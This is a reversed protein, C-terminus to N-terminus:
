LYEDPRRGGGRLWLRFEDLILLGQPGFHQQHAFVPLDLAGVEVCKLFQDGELGLQGLFRALLCGYVCTGGGGENAGQQNGGEGQANDEGKEDDARDGSRHALGRSQGLGHGLAIEGGLEVDVLLVLDAEHGCREIGHDPLQAGHDPVDDAPDVRSVAEELSRAATELCSEALALSVESLAPVTAAAVSSILVLMWDTEAAMSCDVLLTLMTAEEVSSIVAVTLSIAWLASFAREMESAATLCDRCVESFIATSPSDARLIPRTVSVM